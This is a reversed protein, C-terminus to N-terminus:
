SPSRSRPWARSTARRAPPAAVLRRRRGRRRGDRRPRRRAGPAAPRHQGAPAPGRRPERRARAGRRVHELALQGDGADLARRALALLAEDWASLVQGEGGEWPQFRRARLLELAVEARGTATHLQALEVTLDDRADVASREGTSCRSASRPRRAPGSPWSTASTSWAPTAPLSRSRAARLAARAADPDALVNFAAVARNRWVVPDSPDLETSTRWAAIADHHRRQFYLWHGLIAWARADDPHQEVHARLMDSTTSARPSATCPPHRGRWRATGARRRRARRGGRLIRPPTCTCRATPGGGSRPRARGRRRGRAAPRRRAVCGLSDYELAVDLLTPADTPSTTVQWTAPGSTSRTATWRGHWCRTRRPTAAPAGCCSPSCRRPRCTTRRRGAAERAHDLASRDRGRAADLRAMALLAPGRWAQNWRAKGWAEYAEDPRGTRALVQGLRYNAEGDGPNTNLRTQRALAARLHQEAEAYRGARYRRAALAVNSRYDGPDRRLAELWYPEPSRTAHRYQDLHM